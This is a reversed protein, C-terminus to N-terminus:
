LAVVWVRVTAKIEAHLKLVVDYIGLERIAQELMVKKHDVEIGETALTAAIDRSTVSGFLKDSEGAKKAITISVNELQGQAEVAAARMKLKRSDIMKKQHEFQAKNGTSARVALKQPILYNRAYGPKVDVLEGMDGLKSVDELLIVEM